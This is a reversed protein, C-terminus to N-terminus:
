EKNNKYYNCIDKLRCTECKPKKATCTYRGFLVLMRHLNSWQSKDFIEMLELECKLANKANTLGIRNSVRFVHTDVAIAEGNFAESFVVNATKRGVGGLTQLDELNNPVQGNFDQMIKRSAKIINKAKNNYFGTSYIIPKLEEISLDSFDEPKNYKKFLEKTVINVRKDTCQASLSVAVLLEFASTYNLECRADPYNEVLYEWVRKAKKNM